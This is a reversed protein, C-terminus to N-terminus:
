MWLMELRGKVKLIVLGHLGRRCIRQRLRFRRMWARMFVRGKPVGWIRGPSEEQKKEFVKGVTDVWQRRTDVLQKLQKTVVLHNKEDPGLGLAAPCPPLAM